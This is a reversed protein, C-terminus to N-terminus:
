LETLNHVAPAADDALRRDENGLAFQAAHVTQRDFIGSAPNPILEAGAPGSQRVVPAQQQFAELPSV